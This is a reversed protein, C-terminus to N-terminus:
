ASPKPPMLFTSRNHAFIDDCVRLIPKIIMRFRIL